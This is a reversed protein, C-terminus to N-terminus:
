ALKLRTKHGYKIRNVQKQNNNAKFISYNYFKRKRFYVM